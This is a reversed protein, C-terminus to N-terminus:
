HIGCQQIQKIIHESLKQLSEKTDVKPDVTINFTMNYVISTPIEEEIEKEVKEVWNWEEPEQDNLVMHIAQSCSDYQKIAVIDFGHTYTGNFQLESNYDYNLSSIGGKHGNIIREKNYFVQLNDDKRDLLVCLGDDRLKFLMSTNLESKNM